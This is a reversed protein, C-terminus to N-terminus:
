VVEIFGLIVAVAACGVEVGGLMSCVIAVVLSTHV